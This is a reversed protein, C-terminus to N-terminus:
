HSRPPDSRGKEKNVVLRLKIMGTPMDPPSRGLTREGMRSMGSSGGHSLPEGM